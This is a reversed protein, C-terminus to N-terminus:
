GHLFIVWYEPLNLSTLTTVNIVINNDIRPFVSKTRNSAKAPKVHSCNTKPFFVCLRLLHHCHFPVVSDSSALMSLSPFSVCCLNWFWTREKKWWLTSFNLLSQPYKRQLRSLNERNRTSFTVKNADNQKKKSTTSLIADSWLSSPPLFICQLTISM